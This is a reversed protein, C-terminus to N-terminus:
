EDTGEQLSDDESEKSEDAEDPAEPDDPEAVRFFVKIREREVNTIMSDTVEVREILHRTYKVEDIHYQYMAGCENSAFYPTTTYRFTITDNFEPSDLGQRKYDYHIFFSSTLQGNRFPIYIQQTRKGSIVLLSDMPADVGGFDISDLTLPQNTSGNYFGMLPLASHNDACTSNNCSILWFSLPLLLFLAIINLLRRMKM